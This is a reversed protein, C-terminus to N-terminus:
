FMLMCLCVDNQTMNSQTEIELSAALAGNISNSIVSYCRARFGILRLATLIVQFLNVHSASVHKRHKLYKNVFLIIHDIHEKGSQQKGNEQVQVAAFDVHM